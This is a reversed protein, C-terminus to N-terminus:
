SLSPATADRVCSTLRHPERNQGSYCRYHVPPPAPHAAERQLEQQMGVGSHLLGNM